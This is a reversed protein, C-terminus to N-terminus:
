SSSSARRAAAASRLQDDARHRADRRAALIQQPQVLRGHLRLARDVAGIAFFFLLGADLDVLVMNRGIPLVAFGLFAAVVLVVPALFHM